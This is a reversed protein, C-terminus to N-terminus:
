KEVAKEKKFAEFEEGFGWKEILWNTRAEADMRKFLNTESDSLVQLIQKIGLDDSALARGLEYAIMGMNARTQNPFSKQFLVIRLTFGEELGTKEEEGGEGRTLSIITRSIPIILNFSVSDKSLEYFLLLNKFFIAGFPSSYVRSLFSLLCSGLDNSIVHSHDIIQAILNQKRLEDKERKKEEIQKSTRLCDRIEDCNRCEPKTQTITQGDKLIIEKISGFCDKKDM